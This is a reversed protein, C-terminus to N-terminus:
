SVHVKVLRDVDLCVFSCGYWLGVSGFGDWGLKVSFLFIFLLSLPFFLFNFAESPAKLFIMSISVWFSRIKTKM